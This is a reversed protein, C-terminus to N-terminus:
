ETSGARAQIKREKKQIKREKKKDMIARSFVPRNRNERRRNDVPRRPGRTGGVVPDDFPLTVLCFARILFIVRCIGESRGCVTSDSSARTLRRQFNPVARTYNVLPGWTWNTRALVSILKNRRAIQKGEERVGRECPIDEDRSLAHVFKIHFWVDSTRWRWIRRAVIPYWSTEHRARNTCSVWTVSTVSQCNSLCMPCAAGSAKRIISSDGRTGDVKIEVVTRRVDSDIRM